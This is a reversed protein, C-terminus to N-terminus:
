ESIAVRRKAPLFFCGSGDIQDILPVDVHLHLSVPTARNKSWRQALPGRSPPRPAVAITFIISMTAIDSLWEFFHRLGIGGVFKFNIVDEADELTHNLRNLM